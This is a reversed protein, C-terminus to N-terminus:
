YADEEDAASHLSAGWRLDGDGLGQVGQWSEGVLVGEGRLAERIMMRPVQRLNWGSSQIMSKVTRVKVPATTEVM